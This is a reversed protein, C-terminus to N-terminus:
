PECGLTLRAKALLQAYLDASAGSLVPASWESSWQTNLREDGLSVRSVLCVGKLSSALLLADLHPLDCLFLPECRVPAGLAKAWRKLRAVGISPLRRGDDPPCLLAGERLACLGSLDAELLEVRGQPTLDCLLAEDANARM